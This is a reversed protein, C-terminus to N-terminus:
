SRAVCPWTYYSLRSGVNNGYRYRDAMVDLRRFSSGDECVKIRALWSCARRLGASGLSEEQRNFQSAISIMVDNKRAFEALSSAVNKLHAFMSQGPEM